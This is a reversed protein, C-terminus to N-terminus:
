SEFVAHPNSQGDVAALFDKLFSQCDYGHEIHWLAVAFSTRAAWWFIREILANDMELGYEKFFEEWHHQSVYWWLLLGVDRMPDSLQMDDWDVMVLSENSVLINTTNPDPHIPVLIAPQLRKSWSKLRDFASEVELTHLETADYSRIQQELLALDRAIHEAFHPTSSAALLSTLPQDTHFRKIFRALLPLHEAFWRWDPYAGVIYEQVIYSNNDIVGSALVRPAVGIEGLRQLAALPADLKIFVRQKDHRAIFSAKQQGDAPKTIRWKSAQFHRQLITHAIELNSAQMKACVPKVDKNKKFHLMVAIPQRTSTLLVM